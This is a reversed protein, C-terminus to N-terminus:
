DVPDAKILITDAFSNLCGVICSDHVTSQDILAGASWCNLKYLFRTGGWSSMFM